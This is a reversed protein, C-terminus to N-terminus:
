SFGSSKRFRYFYISNRERSWKRRSKIYYKMAISFDCSFRFTHPFIASFEAFWRLFEFWFPTLNPFRELFIKAYSPIHFYVALNFFINIKDVVRSTFRPPFTPTFAFTFCIDFQSQFCKFILTSLFDTLIKILYLRSLAIFQALFGLLLLLYVRLTWYFHCLKGLM